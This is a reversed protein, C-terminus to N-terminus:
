FLALQEFRAAVPHRVRRAIEAFRVIGRRDERAIELGKTQGAVNGMGGYSGWWRCENKVVATAADDDAAALTQRLVSDNEIHSMAEEIGWAIDEETLKKAEKPNLTYHPSYDHKDAWQAM